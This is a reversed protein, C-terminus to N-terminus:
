CMLKTTKKWANKVFGTMEFATKKYLAAGMKNLTLKDKEDFFQMVAWSDQIFKLQVPLYKVRDMFKSICDVANLLGRNFKAILPKILQDDIPRPLVGLMFIRSDVSKENIEMILQSVLQFLKQTDTTCVQNAGLAVFVYRRRVTIQNQRIMDLVLTFTANGHSQVLWKSSFEPFVAVTFDGIITTNASSIELKPVSSVAVQMRQLQHMQVQTQSQPQNKNQSPVGFTDYEDSGQAMWAPLAQSAMEPQM